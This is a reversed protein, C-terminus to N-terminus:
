YNILLIVQINRIFAHLFVIVTIITFVCRQLVMFWHVYNINRSLIKSTTKIGSYVSLISIFDDSFFITLFSLHHIRNYLVVCSFWAAPIFYMFHYKEIDDPIVREIARQYWWYINSTHHGSRIRILFNALIGTHDIFNFQKIRSLFHKKWCKRLKSLDFCNKWIQNLKMSHPSSLSTAISVKRNDPLLRKYKDCRRFYDIWFIM